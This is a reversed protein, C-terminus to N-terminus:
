RQLFEHAIKRHGSSFPIELIKERAVWAYGEPALVQEAQFLSPFLHAKFRTFTHRVESLQGRFATKIGLRKELARRFKERSWLSGELEFYPFEYLDAM